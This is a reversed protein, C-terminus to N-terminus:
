SDLPTSDAGTRMLHETHHPRIPSLIPPNLGVDRNETNTRLMPYDINLSVSDTQMPGLTSSCAPQDNEGGPAVSFWNDLFSALDTDNSM